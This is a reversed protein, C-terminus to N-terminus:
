SDLPAATHAWDLQHAAGSVPPGSAPGPGQERRDGRGRCLQRTSHDLPEAAGARSCPSLHPQAWTNKM